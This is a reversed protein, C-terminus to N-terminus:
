RETNGTGDREDKPRHAKIVMLREVLMETDTIGMYDCAFELGSWDFGGMGNSLM